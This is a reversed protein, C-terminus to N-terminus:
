MLGNVDAFFSVDSISVVEPNNQLHQSGRNYQDRTYGYRDVGNGDVFSNGRSTLDHLLQSEYLTPVDYPKMNDVTEEDITKEYEEIVDFIKEFTALSKDIGFRTLDHGYYWVYLTHLYGMVIDDHEGDEAAVKGNKHRVLHTIDKVLLKTNILHKYDKVQRILLQIMNDRVSTTVYTGIYGRETAKRKLSQETTEYTTANKSIDLKPDHYFRHELRSEQIFSPIVKGISNTEPCFIGKPIIKAVETICRMLDLASMYPSALEAVVELTYPHTVVFTTNDGNSGTAVDIGILYPITIDFYPTDSTLDSIVIDHKYVYLHYKKLLFIDYDYDRVHEIIYDIDEQKFLENGSGRFRDLLVGRRYEALKGSREAEQYQARLWAESKRLQYYKFEIYVMTVPTQSGEDGTQTMGDFMAAIEEDTLDYFQESFPPTKDIMREAAKGPQTEPDGPTSALMICTRGGNQKAITRGSIMAPTAGSIVSDIYPIYEWEDIFAVFLTMGRMKDKAKVDSDASALIYINTGHSEYKLSKLGPLKGRDAWPNMYKPLVSVYDRFMEANRLTDKEKIHMFPIDINNFDFIFAYESLLEIITTKFTQRPQNLMFDISHEYCWTAACSARTLCVSYPQPAGKAPIRAVERLWYWLNHKCELIIRGIDEVSLDPSHPDLDFINFHPNKVELMFYWNKIGLTKLEQATQLFSQNRTGFDYYKSGIKMINSM